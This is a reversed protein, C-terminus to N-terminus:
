GTVTMPVTQNPEVGLLDFAQRQLPTPKTSVSISAVKRLRFDSIPNRGTVSLLSSACDGRPYHDKM